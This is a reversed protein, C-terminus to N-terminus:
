GIPRGQFVSLSSRHRLGAGNCLGTRYYFGPGLWGRPSEVPTSHRLDTVSRHHQYGRVSAATRACCRLRLAAPKRDLDASHTALPQGWPGIPNCDGQSEARALLLNSLNACAILLVGGVAFSLVLLPRRFRGSIEERLPSLRAGFKGREPHASQLQQNLVEFETQAQSVTIGSKLRGIVAM